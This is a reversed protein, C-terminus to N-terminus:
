ETHPCARDDRVELDPWIGAYSPTPLLAGDGPNSIVYFLAELISGARALAIVNEADVTRGWVDASAFAAIQGRLTLPGIMSDYAVSVPGVHRSRNLQLELVDWM